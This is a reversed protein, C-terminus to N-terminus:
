PLSPHIAPLYRSSKLSCEGHYEIMELLLRNLNGISLSHSLEALQDPSHTRTWNIFARAGRDMKREENTRCRSCLLGHYDERLWGHDKLSQHCNSCRRVQFLVGEIRLVWILFYLLRLPPDATEAPLDLLSKILRYTRRAHDKQPLFKIVVEAVLYYLFVNPGRCVSFFHSKIIEGRSITVLNRNEKEYFLFEGETFLEFLPGFRNKFRAAGPAVAHLVGEDPNLLTVLKDQEKFNQADLVLATIQRQPM